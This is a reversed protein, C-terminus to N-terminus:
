TRNRCRIAGDVAFQEIALDSPDMGDPDRYWLPSQVASRLAGGIFIIAHDMVSPYLGHVEPLRLVDDLGGSLTQAKALCGFRQVGRVAPDAAAQV